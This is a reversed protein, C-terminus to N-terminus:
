ALVPTSRRRSGRRLQRMGVSRYVSFGNLDDGQPDVVGVADSVAQGYASFLAGSANWDLVDGIVDIETLCGRIYKRSPRGLGAGFDVRLVCFLPLRATALQGRSGTTGPSWSQFVNDDPAASAIRIKNISVDPFYLKREADMLLTALSEAEVTGVQFSCLYRNTWYELGLRKEIDIQSIPLPM